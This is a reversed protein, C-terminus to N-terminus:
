NWRDRILRGERTYKLRHQERVRQWNITTGQSNITLEKEWCKNGTYKQKTNRSKAKTQSSEWNQGKGARYAKPANWTTQILFSGRGQREEQVPM